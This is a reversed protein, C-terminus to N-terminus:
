ILIPIPIKFSILISAINDVADTIIGVSKENQIKVLKMMMILKKLLM